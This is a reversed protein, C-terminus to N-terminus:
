SEQERYDNPAYVNIVYFITHEIQLKTILCRGHPDIEVISAQFKSAPNILMTVGKSHETGHSFFGKGGLEATWIKEDEPKSFTEQLNFITAKQNKLYSFIARRKNTNCLGRVNLSLIKLKHVM